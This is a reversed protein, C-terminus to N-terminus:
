ISDVETELKLADQSKVITVGSVKNADVKEFNNSCGTGTDHFFNHIKTKVM